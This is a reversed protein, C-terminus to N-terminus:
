PTRNPAPADGLPRFQGTLDVRVPYGDLRTPIMRRSAVTSDTVFVRICPEGECTGIATGVVSPLSMLSDTHTALVQEISRSPM